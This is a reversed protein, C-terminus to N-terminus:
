HELYYVCDLKCEKVLKLVAEFGGKFLFHKMMLPNNVMTLLASAVKRQAVFNSAGKEDLMNEVNRKSGTGPRELEQNSVELQSSDELLDSELPARCQYTLGNATQQMSYPPLGFYNKKFKSRILAVTEADVRPSQLEARTADLIAYRTSM